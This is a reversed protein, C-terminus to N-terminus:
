ATLALQEPCGSYKVRLGDLIESHIQSVRSESLELTKGIQKMTMEEYYYLTIILREVKNLHGTIFKHYDLRQIQFAPDASRPDAISNSMSDDDDDSNSMSNLSVLTAPQFDSRIRKYEDIDVGMEKAMEKDSPIRELMAELKSHARKFMNSRQRTLRPVWDLRRLEDIMSGRVRPKCFTSFKVNMTPDFSEASSILGFVGTSVLDDFEVNATTSACLDAAISRVLPLYDEILRDRDVHNNSEIDIRKTTRRTSSKLM